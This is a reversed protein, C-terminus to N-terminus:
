DDVPPPAIPAPIEQSTDWELTWGLDDFLHSLLIATFGWVVVGHVLFAPSRFIQGGRRLVSMRRNAPDLLDAVPVRFVQASEAFDVVAVPSPSAWWALVPTVLFNSVSLPIAPLVGLVEVGAADLGTEEVAERVAAGVPGDDDPDIAGGPFAVQGPHSSLNAAREVFLVDLDDPVASDHFHAPADDLAGFLLLVAAPRIAEADLAVNYWRERERVSLRQEMPLEMLRQLDKKASV